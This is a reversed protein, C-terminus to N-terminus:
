KESVIMIGVIVVGAVYPPWLWCLVSATIAAPLWGLGVGLLFGYMAICYIWVSVFIILWTIAAGFKYWVIDDQM